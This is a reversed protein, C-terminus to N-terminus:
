AMGGPESLGSTECAVDCREYFAAGCRECRAPCDEACAMLGGCCPFPKPTKKPKKRRPLFAAAADVPLLECVGWHGPLSHGCSECELADVLLGTM